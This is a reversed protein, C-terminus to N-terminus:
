AILAMDNLFEGEARVHHLVALAKSVGQLLNKVKEHHEGRGVDLKSFNHNTNIITLEKDGFRRDLAKWAESASTKGEM